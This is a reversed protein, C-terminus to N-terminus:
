YVGTRKNTVASADVCVRMNVTIMRDALAAIPPQRIHVSTIEFYAVDDNSEVAEVLM